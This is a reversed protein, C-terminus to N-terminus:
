TLVAGVKRNAVCSSVGKYTGKYTKLVVGDFVVATSEAEFNSDQIGINMDTYGVPTDMENIGSRDFIVRFM